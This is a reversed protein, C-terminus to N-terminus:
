GRNQKSEMDKKILDVIYRNKSTQKDLHEIIAKDKLNVKIHYHKYNMKNFGAIYDQQNFRQHPRENLFNLKDSLVNLLHKKNAKTYFQYKYINRWVNFPKHALGRNSAYTEIFDDVSMDLECDKILQEIAQCSGEDEKDQEHLSQPDIYYNM